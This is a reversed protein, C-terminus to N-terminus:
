NPPPLAVGSLMLNSYKVNADSPFAISKPSKVCDLLIRPANDEDVLPIHAPPNTDGDYLYLLNHQIDVM